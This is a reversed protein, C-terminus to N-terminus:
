FSWGLGLNVGNLESDDSKKTQMQYDAKVVVREHLWYNVGVDIQEYASEASDGAANDWSSMRTFVGFDSNIRYAVETTLGEQESAGTGSDLAEIDDNIDWVTYLAKLTFQNLQWVANAAMLNADIGLDLSGSLDSQHQFTLALELGDVPKGKIRATAAYGSADAEASKQRGSRITIFGPIEPTVAGDDDDHDVMDVSKMGSHFAVDYSFSEAGGSYMVGTEWWTTPIIKGEVNNREVGYFTDPEHTENLFGVPILFLGMSLRDGNALTKEIYAQELEVEGPKGEGALSHELEFESFFKLDDSYQHNIFLVYRHADIMDKDKAPDTANLSNLHHEGYGGITTKSSSTSSAREDLVAALSEVQQKLADIEQQMAANDEAVLSPSSIVLCCALLGSLHKKM